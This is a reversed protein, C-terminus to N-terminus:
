LSIVHGYKKTAIVKQSRTGTYIGDYTPIGKSTIIKLLDKSTEQEGKREYDDIIIVFEDGRKFNDALLCIDYRSYRDTGRPGDIVYLDFAEHAVKDLGNYLTTSFGKILTEKISLNIIESNKSLAFRATFNESWEKDHEIIFHRSQILLNDIFKSIIKSSEGLGLELINEPRYDKLIRVLIYLFSYNAAWRGPHIAVDELWRYGRISDHYVHAWEIEKMQEYMKDLPAIKNIFYKINM